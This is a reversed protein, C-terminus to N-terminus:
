DTSNRLDYSVSSLPAAIDELSRREARVGMVAELLAAGLMLAVGIMYGLFLAERSGSDILLGFLWPAVIGGVATGASYFVAIALARIELPFVESVTLYAASAAPSAFFFLLTWLGAQTFSTLMGHVFLWGTLTLVLASATYTGAIMKRRGITDFFRGLILPGLFNSIAFPLMYFGTADPRVSYYRTLVLAYTFFIANYVFAQATMLAFGVISRSLYRRFIADFVADFGFNQRRFIRLPPQSPPPL